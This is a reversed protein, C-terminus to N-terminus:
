VRLRPESLRLQRPKVQYGRFLGGCLKPLKQPTISSCRADSDGPPNFGREAAFVLTSCIFPLGKTFPHNDIAM